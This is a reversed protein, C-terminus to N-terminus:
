RYATAYRRKTDSADSAALSDLDDNDDIDSCISTGCQISHCYFMIQTNFMYMRIYFSIGYHFLFLRWTFGKFAILSKAYVFILTFFKSSPTLDIASLILYMVVNLM